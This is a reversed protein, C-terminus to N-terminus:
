RDTKRKEKSPQSGSKKRIKIKLEEEAIDIMSELLEAKLNSLELQKELEKVRKELDKDSTPKSMSSKDLPLSEDLKGSSFFEPGYKEIWRDLGTYSVSYERTLEAKSHSGTLYKQTAERKDSEKFRKSPTHVRSFKM